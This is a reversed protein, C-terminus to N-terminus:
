SHDEKHWKTALFDHKIEELMGITHHMDLLGVVTKNFRRDQLGAFSVAVLGRMRGSKADELMGEIAKIVNSDPEDISPEEAHQGIRSVNGQQSQEDSM